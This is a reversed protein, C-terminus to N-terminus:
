LHNGNAKTNEQYRRCNRYEDSEGQREGRRNTSSVGNEAPCQFM